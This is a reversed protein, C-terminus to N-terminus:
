DATPNVETPAEVLRWFGVKMGEKAPGLVTM